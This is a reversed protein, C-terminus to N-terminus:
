SNGKSFRHGPIIEIDGSRLIEDAVRGVDIGVYSHCHRILVIRLCNDHHQFLPKSSTSLCSYRSPASSPSPTPPSSTSTLSPKSSASSPYSRKTQQSPLTAPASTIRKPPTSPKFFYREFFAQIKEIVTRKKESRNGGGFRSMPPLIKDIDTGTTRVQGDRFSSEIFKETEEPKLNESQILERLDAAKQQMVYERWSQEVDADASVSSIFNEILEKKSRLQVGRRKLEVHVLPLGNVLITVDYRTNHSGQSEEYQNIVQLSNNHIGTKDLLYINKSEGTERRLVQIYDEQIRQTKVVIDDNKGAICTAFFTEWENDTFTYHNLKELQARLNSM